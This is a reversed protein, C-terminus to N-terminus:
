HWYNVSLNDNNETHKRVHAHTINRRKNHTKNIRLYARYSYMMLTSMITSMGIICNHSAKKNCFELSNCLYLLNFLKSVRFNSSLSISIVLWKSYIAAHSIVASKILKPMNSHLHHARSNTELTIMGSIGFILSIRYVLNQQLKLQIRM